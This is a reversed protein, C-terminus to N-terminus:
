LMELEKKFVPTKERLMSHPKNPPPKDYTQIKIYVPKMKCTGLTREFIFEHKSSINCLM